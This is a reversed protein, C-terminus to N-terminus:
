AKPQYALYGQRLLDLALASLVIKFALRFTKEPIRHLLASGLITGLYGTAIMAIILPLWQRFSFGFLGFILVKLLHHVTNAMASTAVLAKRDDTILAGFLAVVMPGMAGLFMAFCAIIASIIAFAPASLRELGPIRGWTIYVIFLGLIIKMAAEPLQVMTYGGVVAGIISGILFPKMIDLRVHGRQHWARGTNSGLQILGHVPILAAVPVFQSMMALLMVGGGLGFSATTASTFFSAFILIIATAPEMGDPM